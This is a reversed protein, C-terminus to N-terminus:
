IVQRVFAAAHHERMDLLVVRPFDLITSKVPLGAKEIPTHCKPHHPLPRTHKEEKPSPDPLMQM